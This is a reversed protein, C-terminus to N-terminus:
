KQAQKYGWCIRIASGKIPKDKLASKAATASQRHTFQVFGCGKNPPIKTYVITGYKGFVEQLELETVEPALGGIFLTTNTSGPEYDSLNTSSSSASGFPTVATLTSGGSSGASVTIGSLDGSLASNLGGQKKATAPSVRIARSSLFKGNMESLARDRERNDGFRVFGYGKSRGTAADTIVQLHVWL